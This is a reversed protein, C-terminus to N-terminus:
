TTKSGRHVLGVAAQDTPFIILEQVNVHAPRELCWVISEAIDEPTLPTMGEYVSSARKEDGQFRVLSFETEVMGPAINTVRLNKGVLDMRMAESLARVAYKTASYVAGGSYTWRGAVSGLNVIHGAGKKTMHPVIKRTVYLLGLINTHVMQEWDEIRGEQIKDTGLALGANNILIDISEVERGLKEFAAELSEKVSIDFALCRVKVGKTKELERRVEDLRDMRRGTLILDIGRNALHKATALGIGSSAGTIFATRERLDM